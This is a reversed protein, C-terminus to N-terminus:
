LQWKKIFAEVKKFEPISQQAGENTVCLAAAASAYTMADVITAQKAILSVFYGIYTDGAATTDITEVPYSPVYTWENQQNLFVSGNTGLTIIINQTGKKTLEGAPKKVDDKDKPYIGTYFECEMQNLILYDILPFISENIKIAPAPNLFTTMGIKKATKLAYEITEIPIEMQMVLLDDKTAHKLANDVDDKTVHHNAGADVIIRNDGNSILIIATGSAVNTLTKIHNTKVKYQKLTNLLENSFTHGLAGVLYTESKSKSIAVAQNAGKGGPNIMFNSGQITEGKEPIYPTHVVMDMNISGVVFIKM